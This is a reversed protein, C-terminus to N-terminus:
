IRITGGVFVFPRKDPIFYYIGCDMQYNKGPTVTIGADVSYNHIVSTSQNYKYSVEVFQRIYGYLKFDFSVTSFLEVQTFFPDITFSSLGGTYGLGYKKAVELEANLLLGGNLFHFKDTFFNTTRLFPMIAVALDGSDNGILNYKYRVMFDEFAKHERLEAVDSIKSKYFGSILEIDMRNHFGYKLNFYGLGLSHVASGSETEKMYNLADAEIMVHNKDVTIPSETQHPRDPSLERLKTQEQALACTSLCLLMFILRMLFTKATM